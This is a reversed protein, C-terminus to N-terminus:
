YTTLCAHWQSSACVVQVSGNTSLKASTSRYHFGGTITSMYYVMLLECWSPNTAASKVARPTSPINIIVDGYVYTKSIQSRVVNGFHRICDVHPNFSAGTGACCVVASKSRQKKIVPHSETGKRNPIQSFLQKFSLLTLQKTAYM